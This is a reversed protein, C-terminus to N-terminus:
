LTKVYEGALQYIIEEVRHKDFKSTKAFEHVQNDKPKPNKKLFNIISSKMFSGTTNVIEENKNMYDEISNYGHKKLIKKAKKMVEDEKPALVQTYYHPEEELHDKAIEKSGEKSDLHEYEVEIGIELEIPDYKDDKQNKSKGQNKLSRICEDENLYDLFEDLNKKM